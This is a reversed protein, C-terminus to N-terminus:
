KKQVDCKESVIGSSLPCALSPYVSLYLIILYTPRILKWFIGIIGTSELFELIELFKM